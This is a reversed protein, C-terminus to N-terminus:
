DGVELVVRFGDRQNLHEEGADGRLACRAHRADTGWSVGRVVRASGTKPGTPDTLPEAAFPGPSYYDGCYEYVNGLMDYLGWANPKLSGVRQPKGKANEATWAFQPRAGADDGWPYRTTTGARCAYEWEAETPLRYRRGEHRSLWRCYAVADRWSVNVVPEDGAREYGLNRWTFEPAERWRGGKLGYGGRGNTEATTRHNTATVFARFDRLTVEHRGLLFPKTIRVRRQRGEGRPSQAYWEGVKAAALEATLTEVEAPPSGMLFEGAAVRVFKMGLTNEYGTPKPAQAVAPAVACAGGVLSALVHLVVFLPKRTTPCAAPRDPCGSLGAAQGVFDNRQRSNRSM